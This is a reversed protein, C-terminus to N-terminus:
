FNVDKVPLDWHAELIEFRRQEEQKFAEQDPYLQKAITSSDFDDNAIAPSKFVITVRYDWRADETMHYRPTMMSVRVIRGMEIEKRLVPLHNRKFLALFEEAHGWKAKYYYEIVYPAARETGQAAVSARADAGVSKASGASVVLIALAAVVFAVRSNRFSMTGETGM